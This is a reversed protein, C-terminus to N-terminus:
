VSEGTVLFVEATDEQTLTASIKCPMQVSPKTPVSLGAFELVAILAVVKGFLVGPPLGQYIGAPVLDAEEIRDSLIRSLKNVPHNVRDHVHVATRLEPSRVTHM